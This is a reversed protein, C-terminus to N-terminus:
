WKDKIFIKIANFAESEYRFYLYHSKKLKINKGNFKVRYITLGKTTDKANLLNSNIETLKKRNVLENIKKSIDDIIYTM